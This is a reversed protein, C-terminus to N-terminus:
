LQNKGRFSICYRTHSFRVVRYDADEGMHVRALRGQALRHQDKRSFQFLRPADVVPVAVEVGVSELPGPADRDEGLLRLRREAAPAHRQQVRRPM